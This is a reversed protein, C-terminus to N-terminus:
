LRERSAELLANPRGMFEAATLISHGKKHALDRPQTLFETYGETRLLHHDVIVTPVTEALRMLNAHAHQKSADPLVRLHIPPGSVILIRPRRELIWDIAETEILQTDSGFVFTGDGDSVAAMIIWGQRSGAEGHKVPQSFTIQGFTKRDAIIVRRGLARAFEVARQRQARNLKRQWSKAYVPKDRYVDRAVEPNTLDLERDEFSSYHDHHFHTIAIADARRAHSQIAARVTTLEELERPHPSKGYRKPCVSVGPDILIRLNSTEVYTALSRVGFSDAGLIKIRL